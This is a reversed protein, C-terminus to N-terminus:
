LSKNYVYNEKKYDFIKKPIDKSKTNKISYYDLVVWLVGNFKITRKLKNYNYSVTFDGLLIFWLSLFVLLKNTM